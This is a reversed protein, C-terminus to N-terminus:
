KNRLPLLNNDDLQRQLFEIQKKLAGERYAQENTEKQANEAEESVKTMEMFEYVATEIMQCRESRTKSALIAYKEEWSLGLYGSLACVMENMTKWHLIFGRAWVGWQFGRIFKLLKSKIKEFRIKIDDDSVDDEESVIVAESHIEGEETIKIDSIEVREKARIRINGDDDIHEIQGSVGYTYFDEASLEERNRSEKLMMFLVEEGQKIMQLDIDEFLDKKFYFTVEPLIMMDFVPISIM